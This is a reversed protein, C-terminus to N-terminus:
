NRRFCFCGCGYTQANLLEESPDLVLDGNLPNDPILAFQILEFEPFMKLVQEYGYIRHANFMVKPGGIPIVFLLNGGDSVVRKLEGIAKLDGDPDLADGYRGLGIHEVVHMCSLSNISKDGFPLALLDASESTLNTLSLNVPRYDYFEVPVFASVISCFYL